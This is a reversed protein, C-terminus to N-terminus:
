CFVFSCLVALPAQLIKLPVDRLLINGTNSYIHRTFVGVFAMIAGLAQTAVLVPSFVLLVVTYIVTHWIPKANVYGASLNIAEWGADADAKTVGYRGYVIKGAGTSSNRFSTREPVYIDVDSTKMNALWIAVVLIILPIFIVFIGMLQIIEPALIFLWVGGSILACMPLVIFLQVFFNGLPTREEEEDITFYIFLTSIYSAVDENDIGDVDLGFENKACASWILGILFRVISLPSLIFEIIWPIFFPKSKRTFSILLSIVASVVVLAILPTADGQQRSLADIVGLTLLSNILALIGTVIIRFIRM